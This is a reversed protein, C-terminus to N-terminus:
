RRNPSPFISCTAERLPRAALPAAPKHAKMPAAASAIGAKPSQDGRSSMWDSGPDDVSSFEGEISPQALM